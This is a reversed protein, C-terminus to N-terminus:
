VLRRANPHLTASFGLQRARRIVHEPDEGSLSRENMTAAGVGAALRDGTGVLDNDTARAQNRDHTALPRREPLHGLVRHFMRDLDAHELRSRADGLPKVQVPPHITDPSM